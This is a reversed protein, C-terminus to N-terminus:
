DRERERERERERREREREEKEERERERERERRRHCQLLWKRLQGQKAHEHLDGALMLPAGAPLTAFAILIHQCWLVVAARIRIYHSRTKLGDKNGFM